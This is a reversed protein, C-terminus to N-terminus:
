AETTPDATANEPQPPPKLDEVDFGQKRLNSRARSMHEIFKSEDIGEKGQLIPLLYDRGAWLLHQKTPAEPSADDNLDEIIPELQSRQAASFETWEAAQARKARFEELARWVSVYTNYYDRDADDQPWFLIIGNALVWAGIVTLLPWRSKWKDLSRQKGFATAQGRTPSM